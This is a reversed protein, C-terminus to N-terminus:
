KKKQSKLYVKKKKFKLNPKKALARWFNNNLIAKDVGVLLLRAWATAAAVAADIADVVPQLGPIVCVGNFPDPIFLLKIKDFEVEAVADASSDNFGKEKALWTATAFM